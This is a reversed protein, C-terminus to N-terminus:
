LIRGPAKKVNRRDVVHVPIGPGVVFTVSLGKYTKMTIKQTQDLLVGELPDTDFMYSEGDYHLAFNAEM